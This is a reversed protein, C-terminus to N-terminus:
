GDYVNIYWTKSGSVDRLFPVSGANTTKAGSAFGFDVAANVHYIATLANAYINTSFLYLAGPDEGGEAVYQMRMGIIATAAAMPTGASPVYIGNNQAAVMVSGADSSAGMNIWTSSAAVTDALTGTLTLEIEVAGYGDTFAANAASGFFKAIRGTAGIASCTADIAMTTSGSQIYLGVPWAIGGATKHAAFAALTGTATFASMSQVALVGALLGGSEVTTGSGGLRAAVAAAGYSTQIDCDTGTEFTGMLGAHYHNLSGNKVVIQGIAGYTEQNVETDAAFTILHRFRAVKASYASTLDVVSEGFAGIVDLQGDSNVDMGAAFVVASGAASAAAWNGIRFASVSGAGAFSVTSTNPFIYDGNADLVIAKSAAGTGLAALDLYNIEAGTATITTAAPDKLVGYTLIGTAPWIYDDGADLVVAKSAAGTGLALLDLYNVEAATATVDSAGVSLAHKHLACNTGTQALGGATDADVANIEAGTATIVTAAPDKLVGYTLIGTAPWTYDDGADLVVAKSAAGTGLTAIDLYNLEAAVATVTDLINLEAADATIETGDLVVEEVSLRGIKDKTQKAM